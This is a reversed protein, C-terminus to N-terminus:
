AMGMKRPSVMWTKRRSRDRSLIKQDLPFKLDRDERPGLSAGLIETRFNQEICFYMIHTTPFEISSIQPLKGSVTKNEVKSGEEDDYGIDHSQNEMDEENQMATEEKEGEEGSDDESEASHQQKVANAGSNDTGTGSPFKYDVQKIKGAALRTTRRKRLARAVRLDNQNNVGADTSQRKRKRDGEAAAEEAQPPSDRDASNDPLDILDQLTLTKKEDSVTCTQWGNM